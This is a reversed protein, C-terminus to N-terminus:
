LGEMVVEKGTVGSFGPKHGDFVELGVVGEGFGVLVCALGSL